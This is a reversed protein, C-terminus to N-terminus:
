TKHINLYKAMDEDISFFNARSSKKSRKMEGSVSLLETLKETMVRDGLVGAKFNEALIADSLKDYSSLKSSKM